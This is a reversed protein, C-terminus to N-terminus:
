KVAVLEVDFTLWANGPITGKVGEPGYAMQPPITLRRKDGVRMGNVGIDWGKIVEGVGANVGNVCFTLRKFRCLV